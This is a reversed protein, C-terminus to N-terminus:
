LHWKKESDNFFIRVTEWWTLSTKKLRSNAWKILKSIMKLHVIHSRKIMNKLLGFSTMRHMTLYIQYYHGSLVCNLLHLNLFFHKSYVLGGREGNKLWHFNEDLIPLLILTTKKPENTANKQQFDAYFDPWESQLRLPDKFLSLLLALDM